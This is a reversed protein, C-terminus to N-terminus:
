ICKGQLPRIDEPFSQPRFFELEVPRSRALRGDTMEFVVTFRHRSSKVANVKVRWRKLVGQNVDGKIPLPLRYNKGEVKLEFPKRLAIEEDQEEDDGECESPSAFTGLPIFGSFPVSKPVISGSNNRWSFDLRGEAKFGFSSGSAFVFKALSSLTGKVKNLCQTETGTEMAMNCATEWKRLTKEKVGLKEMSEVFSFEHVSKIEGISIQFRESTEGSEPNVYNFNLRTNEAAAWGYNEISFSLNQPSVPALPISQLAPEGDLESESVDIYAGVIGTAATGLNEIGIQLELPVISEAVYNRFSYEELAARENNFGEADEVVINRNGRWIELMKPADPFIRLRDPYASGAYGLVPRFGHCCFASSALASLSVALDPASDTSQALDMQGPLMRRLGREERGSRWVSAYVHRGPETVTGNGNRLGAAFGGEYVQGTASIYQGQGHQKGAIFDGTYADGNPLLLQGHGEMAGNKWGGDYRWGSRMLLAGQGDFRGNAFDGRYQAMITNGGFRVDSKVRWTMIGKGSIRGPRDTSPDLPLFHVDYQTPFPDAFEYRRRELKDAVGDWVLQVQVRMPAQGADPLEVSAGEPPLPEIGDEGASLGTSGLVALLCALLIMQTRNPANRAM